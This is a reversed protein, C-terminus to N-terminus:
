ADHLGIGYHMGLLTSHGEKTTSEAYDMPHWLEGRVVLELVTAGIWAFLGRCLLSQAEPAHDCFVVREGGDADCVICDADGNGWDYLTFLGPKGSYEDINEISPVVVREGVRLGNSARYMQRLSPPLSSGSSSKFTSVVSVSVPLETKLDTCLATQLSAFLRAYKDGVM